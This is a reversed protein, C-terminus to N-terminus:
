KKVLLNANIELMQFPSTPFYVLPLLRKSAPLATNFDGFCAVLLHLGFGDSMKYETAKSKAKDVQPFSLSIIRKPM